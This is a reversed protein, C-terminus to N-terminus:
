DVLPGHLLSSKLKDETTVYYEKNFAFFEEKSVVGDSNTDMADFSARAYTVDIGMAKYYNVWEQFSIEGNGDADIIEFHTSFIKLIEEVNACSKAFNAICEDYTLKVSDNVIGLAKCLLNHNDELKKLHEKSAGMEKYREIVIHYDSLTVFGDKNTDRVRAENRLKKVWFESKALEELNVAM